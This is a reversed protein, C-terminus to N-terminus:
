VLVAPIFDWHMEFFATQNVDDVDNLFELTANAIGPWSHNVLYLLM